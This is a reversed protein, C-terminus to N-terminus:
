ARCGSLKSATLMRRGARAVTLGNNGLRTYQTRLDERLAAAARRWTM